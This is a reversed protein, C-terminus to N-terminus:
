RSPTPCAWAVTPLGTQTVTLAVVPAASRSGPRVPAAKKVKCLVLGKAAVKLATAAPAVTTELLM